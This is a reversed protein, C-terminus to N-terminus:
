KVTQIMADVLYDLQVKSSYIDIDYFLDFDIPVIKGEQVAPIAQWVKNDALGGQEGSFVIFDGTYEPLVEMSLERYQDKGIIEDEIVKPAKLGLHSYILDGGRGWKDGFVWISGSGDYDGEFISVTQDLIDNEELKAKADTIQQDFDALLTKAEEQKNFVEGLFTLREEMSMETFPVFITPAIKSMKEVDDESIVLILDPEYAMITEEDFTDWVPIDAVEKEYAKGTADYTAVPKVGLALVDGLNYTVIVRQPVDPIEVDGLTTEITRTENSEKETGKNEQNSCAGLFMLFLALLFISVKKM